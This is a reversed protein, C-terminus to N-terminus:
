FARTESSEGCTDTYLIKLCIKCYHIWPKTDVYEGERRLLHKDYDDDGDDATASLTLAAARRATGKKNVVEFQEVNVSKLECFDQKIRSHEDDNEEMHFLLKCHVSHKTTSMNQGFHQLSSPTM